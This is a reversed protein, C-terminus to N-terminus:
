FQSARCVHEEDWASSLKQEEFDFILTMTNSTLPISVSANQDIEIGKQKGEDSYIPM